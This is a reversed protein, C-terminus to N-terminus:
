VEAAPGPRERSVARSARPAPLARRLFVAACFAKCLIEWFCNIPSREGQLFGRALLKNRQTDGNPLSHRSPNIEGRGVQGRKGRGRPACGQAKNGFPIKTFCRGGQKTIGAPLFGAARRGHWTLGRLAGQFAPVGRFLTPSGKSVGCGQGPSIQEKSQM